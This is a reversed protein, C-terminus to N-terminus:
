FCVMYTYTQISPPAILGSDGEYKWNDSNKFTPTYSITNVAYSFTSGAHLKTTSNNNQMVRAVQQAAPFSPLHYTGLDVDNLYDYSGARFYMNNVPLWLRKDNNAELIIYYWFVGYSNICKQRTSFIPDNTDNVHIVKHGYDDISYAISTGNLLEKGTPLQDSMNGSASNLIKFAKPVITDASLITSGLPWLHQIAGIDSTTDDLKCDFTKLEFLKEVTGAYVDINTGTGSSGTNLYELISTSLEAGFRKTFTNLYEVNVVQKSETQVNNLPTPAYLPVTSEATLSDVQFQINDFSGAALMTKVSSAIITNASDIMVVTDSQINVADESAINMENSANIDIANDSKISILSKASILNENAAEISNKIGHVVIGDDDAPEKDENIGVHGSLTIGNYFSVNNVYDDREILSNAIYTSLEKCSMSMSRYRNTSDSDVNLDPDPYSVEILTNALAKYDLPESGPLNPLDSIRSIAM